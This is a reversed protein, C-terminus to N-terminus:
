RAIGRYAVLPSGVRHNEWLLIGVRLIEVVPVKASGPGEKWRKFVGHVFSRPPYLAHRVQPSSELQESGDGSLVLSMQDKGRQHDDESDVIASVPESIGRSRDLSLFISPSLV